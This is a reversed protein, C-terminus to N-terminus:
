SEKEKESPISTKAASVLKETNAPPVPDLGGAAFPQCRIVRYFILWLAKPLTHVQLAEMAYESCSPYFRCCSGVFPSICLQYAKILAKCLIRLM